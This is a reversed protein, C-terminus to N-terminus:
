EEMPIYTAKLYGRKEMQEDTLSLLEKLDNYDTDNWIVPPVSSPKDLVKIANEIDEVTLCDSM